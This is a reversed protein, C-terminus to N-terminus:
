SGARATGDFPPRDDGTTRARCRKADAECQAIFTQYRGTVWLFARRLGKPRAKLAEIRRMEQAKLRAAREARQKAVLEKRPNERQPDEFGSIRSDENGELFHEYYVESVQRLQDSM